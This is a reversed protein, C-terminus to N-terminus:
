LSLSGSVLELQIKVDATQSMLRKEKGRLNFLVVLQIAKGNM